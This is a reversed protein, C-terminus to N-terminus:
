TPPISGSAPSDQAKITAAPGQALAANATLLCAFVASVAALLAFTTRRMFREEM